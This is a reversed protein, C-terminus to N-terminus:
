AHGGAWPPLSGRVGKVAAAAAAAAAARWKERIAREPGRDSSM